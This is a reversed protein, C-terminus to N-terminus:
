KREKVAETPPMVRPAAWELAAPMLKRGTATDHRGNPEYGVGVAIGREKARYLFSEVQAPINFEDKGGYAVYLNLDSPKLDYQEMMEIPNFRSLKEMADPGHGILPGFLNHFRIKIGKPYGIVEFPRLQERWGWCDPDFPTQYRGHCDVWRVNLAPVFGMATKIRDKHKIAQAFAASGGMSAGMLTHAEREPRISFTNMLFNWVDQMLYDEYRGADTNAFFTAIHYYEPRGHLSGDPAAVICPPLQGEAIAKDFGKAATKLFFQEDQGAGHLFIGLSYKKAPDYNPPLYVYLDRKQCLAASWIRNDKGHNHTFDLVQGQICRNVKDLECYTLLGGDVAQQGAVGLLVALMAAIRNRM